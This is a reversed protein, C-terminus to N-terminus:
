DMHTSEDSKYKPTGRAVCGWRRLRRCGDVDHWRDELEEFSLWTRKYSSPDEFYVREADYGIAVVYHGDGWTRRYAKSSTKYAQLALIVPYQQDIAKKIGEVSACRDPTLGYYRLTKVIGAVNTGSKATRAIQMVTDERVDIGYYALVSALACAGCDFNYTQRLEPFDLLVAMM